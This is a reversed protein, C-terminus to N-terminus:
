AAADVKEKKKCNTANMYRALEHKYSAKNTNIMARLRGIKDFYAIDEESIANSKDRNCPHCMIQGNHMSDNGGLSKPVIHDWTLMREVGQKDFGYFQLSYHKNPDRMDKEIYWHKGELGCKCCFLQGDEFLSLRRSKKPLLYKGMVTVQRNNSVQKIMGLGEDLDLRAVRAIPNRKIFAMETQVGDLHLQKANKLVTFVNQTM